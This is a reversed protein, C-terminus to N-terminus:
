ATQLDNGNNEKKPKPVVSKPKGLPAPTYDEFFQAHDANIELLKKYVDETLNDDTVTGFGAVQLKGHPAKFRKAM